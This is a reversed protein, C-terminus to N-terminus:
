ENSYKVRVDPTLMSILVDSIFSKREEIFADFKQPNGDLFVDTLPSRVLMPFVVLSVLTSVIYVFPVKKLKGGEMEAEMLAKMKLLPEIYQVNKLLAKYLHKPDRNFENAVFLPLLPNRQVMSVYQDVILPIKELCSVPKEVALAINPLLENKLQQFIADFLMEKTHFYYHLATRSMGAEAAIDGMKTEEYGKRVFVIKAAEIIRHEMDMINETEM